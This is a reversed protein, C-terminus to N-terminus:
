DPCAGYSEVLVSKRATGNRFQHFNLPQSGRVVHRDESPDPLRPFAPPQVTVSQGKRALDDTGKVVPPHIDVLNRFPKPHRCSGDVFSQMFGTRVQARTPDPVTMDQGLLTKTKEIHLLVLRSLFNRRLHAAINPRHVNPQPPVTNWQLSRPSGGLRSKTCTRQM